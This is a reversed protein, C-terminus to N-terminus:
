QKIKQENAKEQNRMQLYQQQMSLFNEEDVKTCLNTALKGDTSQILLNISWQVYRQSWSVPNKIIIWYNAELCYMLSKVWASRKNEWFRLM